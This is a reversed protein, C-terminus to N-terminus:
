TRHKFGNIIEQAEKTLALEGSAAARTYLLDEWHDTGEWLATKLASLASPSYSTLEFCLAEIAQDMHAHTSYVSQYLKHNQAWEASKWEKPHLAFEAMAGVGIKRTVAPEIVLPAIGIGIESLKISAAETAIAYDCAAILGVGGGVAKAQIRGIVIAKSRRIALIVHAFGSFFAKAEAQSSLALLQDFNAGACFVRDGESQLVIISVGKSELSEIAKALAKLLELTMANSSAHGFTIRAVSQDIKTHLTYDSM